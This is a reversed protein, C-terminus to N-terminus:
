FTTELVLFDNNNILVTNSYNNTKNIKLMTLFYTGLGRLAKKGMRSRGHCKLWWKLQGCNHAEM